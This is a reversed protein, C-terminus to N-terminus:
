KLYKRFNQAEINFFIPCFYKEGCDWHTSTSHILEGSNAEFVQIKIKDDNPYTRLLTILNCVIM